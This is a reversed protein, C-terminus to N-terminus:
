SAEDGAGPTVDDGGAYGGEEEAEKYHPEAFLTIFYFFLWCAILVMRM